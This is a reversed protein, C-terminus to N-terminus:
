VKNNCNKQSIDEIQQFSPKLIKNFLYLSIGPFFLIWVPLLLFFFEPFIILLICPISAIATVFISRIFHWCTFVFANYLHQRFSNNYRAIMIHLRVLIGIFLVSAIVLTIVLLISPSSSQNTLLWFIDFLYIVVGICTIVSCIIGQKLNKIFNAVFAKVISSDEEYIISQVVKSAAIISPSITIIPISFIIILLSLLIMDTVRSLFLMVPSNLDFIQKM